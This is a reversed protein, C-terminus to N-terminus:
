AFRELGVFGSLNPSCGALLMISCSSVFARVAYLLDLCNLFGTGVLYLCSCVVVVRWNWSVMKWVGVVLWVVM